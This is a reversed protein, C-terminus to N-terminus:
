VFLFEGSTDCHDLALDIKNLDEEKCVSTNIYIVLGGGKNSSRIPSQTIPPHFGELTIDEIGHSLKNIDCSTENFCLIDYKQLTSINEKLSGFHKNLSRINLNFTKLEGPKSETSNIFQKYKCERLFDSVEQWMCNYEIENEIKDGIINALKSPDYPNFIKDNCFNLDGVIEWINVAYGPYMTACCTLCGLQGKVCKNHCPRDCWSCVSVNSPTYSYGSCAGCKQKFKPATNNHSKRQACANIPLISSICDYCTWNIENNNAISLAETKTLNQCRAHKLTHCLSCHLSPHSAPIRVDCKDCFNNSSAIKNKNKTHRRKKM